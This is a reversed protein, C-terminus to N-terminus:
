RILANSRKKGVARRGESLAIAIAQRRGKVRPGKKSGSHLKGKKFERMVKEVKMEEAGERAEEALKKRPMMRKKKKAMQSGKLTKILERDEAAEHKFTRIDGKLHKIVKNRMAM